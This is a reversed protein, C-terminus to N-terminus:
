DLEPHLVSLVPFYCPMCVGFEKLTAREVSNSCKPCTKPQRMVDDGQVIWLICWRLGNQLM